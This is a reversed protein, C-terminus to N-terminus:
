RLSKSQQATHHATGEEVGGLFLVCVCSALTVTTETWGGAAAYWLGIYGTWRLAYEGVDDDDSAREGDVVYTAEASCVICVCVRV